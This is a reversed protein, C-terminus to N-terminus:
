FFLHQPREYSCPTVLFVLSLLFASLPQSSLVYLLSKDRKFPFLISSRSNLHLTAILNIFSYFIYILNFVLRNTIKIPITVDQETVCFASVWLIFCGTSKTFGYIPFM